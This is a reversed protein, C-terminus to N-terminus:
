SENAQVGHSAPCCTQLRVPTLTAHIQENRSQLVILSMTERPAMSQLLELCHRETNCAMLQLESPKLASRSGCTLMRGGATCQALLPVQWLAAEHSCTLLPVPWRMSTHQAARKTRDPM